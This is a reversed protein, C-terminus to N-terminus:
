IRVQRVGEHTYNTWTVGDLGYALHFSKVAHGLKSGKTQIQAVYIVSFKLQLWASPGQGCWASHCKGDIDINAFSPPSQCAWTSATFSSHPIVSTNDVGLDLIIM